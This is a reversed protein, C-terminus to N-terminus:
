CFILGREKYRGTSVIQKGNGTVFTFKNTIKRSNVPLDRSYAM